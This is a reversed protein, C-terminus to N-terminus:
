SSSRRRCRNRAQKGARANPKIARQTRPRSRRRCQRGPRGSISPVRTASPTGPSSVSSPSGGDTPVPATPPELLASNLQHRHESIEGHCDWGGIWGCHVETRKELASLCLLFADAGGPLLVDPLDFGVYGEGWHEEDEWIVEIGAGIANLDRGPSSCSGGASVPGITAYPTWASCTWSPFSEPDWPQDPEGECVETWEVAGAISASAGDARVEARTLEGSSALAIDAMLVAALFATAVALSARAKRGAGM